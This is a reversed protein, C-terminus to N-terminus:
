YRGVVKVKCTVPLEYRGSRTPITYKEVLRNYEIMYRSGLLRMHGFANVEVPLADGVESIAKFLGVADDSANEGNVKIIAGNSVSRWKPSNDLAELSKVLTSLM